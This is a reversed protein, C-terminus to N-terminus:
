DHRHVERGRLWNGLEAYSQVRGGHEKQFVMADSESKFALMGPACRDFCAYMASHPERLVKNVKPDQTCPSVDSDVVYIAKAPDIPKDTLFETATVIQVNKEQKQFTLACTMCCTKMPIGNHKISVQMHSHIDRECLPCQAAKRSCSLLAFFTVALVVLLLVSMTKMKM